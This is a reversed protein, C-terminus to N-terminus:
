DVRGRAHRLAAQVEPAVTAHLTQRVLAPLTTVIARQVERPDLDLAEPFPESPRRYHAARAAAWEILSPHPDDLDLVVEGPANEDDLELVSERDERRLADDSWWKRLASSHTRADLAAAVNAPVNVMSGELLEQGNFDFGGLENRQPAVTPSFGVSVSGLMDADILRVVEDSFASVGVPPFQALGRLENGIWRLDTLKGLPLRTTDHAWLLPVRRPIVWKSPNIRDSERDADGTSLTVRYTRPAATKTFVATYTKRILESM